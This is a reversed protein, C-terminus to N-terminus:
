NARQDAQESQRHPSQTLKSSNPRLHTKNPHRTVLSQFPLLARPTKLKTGELAHVHVQIHVYM